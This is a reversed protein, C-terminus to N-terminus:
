SQSSFSDQKNHEVTFLPNKDRLLRVTDRSYVVSGLLIRYEFGFNIIAPM